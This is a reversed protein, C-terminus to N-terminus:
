EKPTYREWHIVAELPKKERTPWEVPVGIPILTLLRRDAPVGLLAKFEDEHRLTWGELWCSGYGLATSAILMNEIAAAGDEVWWRTSPDLIVAIIAGAKDMWAAAVKLQDILARDTVVCFDWPQRNSGTAALRGADVITELDERPIPDGTYQRVSRRRRIAELADM